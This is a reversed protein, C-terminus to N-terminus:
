GEPMQQGALAMLGALPVDAVREVVHCLTEISSLTELQLQSLSTLSIHQVEM